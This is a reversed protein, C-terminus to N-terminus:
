SAGGYLPQVPPLDAGTLYLCLREFLAARAADRAARAADRADWADWAADRAADRADWAATLEAMTAEGRADRRAVDVAAWSRPDPERGCAREGLLAAEACDAAFLRATTDNWTTLHEVIRVRGCAVKDGVDVIPYAPDAEAVYLDKSLWNLVQPGRALHYGFWRPEVKEIPPSWRKLVYRYNGGHTADRGDLCKFLTDNTLEM